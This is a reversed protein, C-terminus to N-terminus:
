RRITISCSGVTVVVDGRVLGFDDTIVRLLVQIYHLSTAPYFQIHDIASRAVKSGLFNVFAPSLRFGIDLTEAPLNQENVASTNLKRNLTRPVEIIRWIAKRTRERQTQINILAERKWRAV